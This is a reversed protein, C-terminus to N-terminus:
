FCIKQNSKLNIFYFYFKKSIKEQKKALFTQLEEVALVFPWRITGGRSINGNINEIYIKLSRRENWLFSTFPDELCINDHICRHLGNIQDILCSLNISSHINYVEWLEGVERDKFFKFLVKQIEELCKLLKEFAELIGLRGSM